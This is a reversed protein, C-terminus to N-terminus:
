QNLGLAKELVKRQQVPLTAIRWALRPRLESKIFPDDAMLLITSISINEYSDYAEQHLGATDYDGEVSINDGAWSGLLPHSHDGSYDSGGGGPSTDSKRLLLSLALMVGGGGNSFKMFEAGDGFDHPNLYEEKTTNVILYFQGV